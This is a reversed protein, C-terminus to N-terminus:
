PIVANGTTSHSALFDLDDWPDQSVTIIDSTWALPQVRLLGHKDTSEVPHEVGLAEGVDEVVQEASDDVGPNVRVSVLIGNTRSSDGEAVGLAVHLCDRSSENLYFSQLKGLLNLNVRVEFIRQATNAEEFLTRVEAPIQGAELVETTVAPLKLVGHLQDPMVLRQHPVASINCSNLEVSVVSEILECGIIVLKELDLIL